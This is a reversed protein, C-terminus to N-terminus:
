ANELVERIERLSLKTPKMKPNRPSGNLLLCKSAHLFWTATQDQESLRNYVGTLDVGKDWRAYIRVHGTKPDKKVVLAYGMKEGVRLVAENATKLGISEGWKTKFKITKPSNIIEEARIKDKLIKFVSDLGAFGFDVVRSDEQYIANLGELINELFFVYRDSEPNPWSINRGHDVECVVALLREMAEQEIKRVQGKDKLVKQWCLQASCIFENTQHHDFEGLGTDVHLIDPNSDVPQDKYTSGAAVFSLKAKQWGSFFKKVVWIAAVADLDPNFHTVIIKM